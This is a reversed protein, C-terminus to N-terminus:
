DLHRTADLLDELEARMRLLARRHPEAPDCAIAADFAKRVHGEGSRINDMVDEDIEDFLARLSVVMRNVTGMFSGDEDVPADLATLISALQAAHDRHLNCFRAVVPRFDPEAKALMREFGALADVTRTHLMAIAQVCAAHDDPSHHGPTATTM